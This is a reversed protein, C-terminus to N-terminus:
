NDGKVFSIIHVRIRSTGQKFDRPLPDFSSGLEHGIVPQWGDKRAPLRIEWGPLTLIDAPGVEIDDGVKLGDITRFDNDTTSVYTVRGNSEDFAVVYDIGKVTLRVFPRTQSPHTVWEGPERLARLSRPLRDGPKPVGKPFQGAWAPATTLLLLILVLTRM